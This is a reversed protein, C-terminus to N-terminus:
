KRELYFNNEDRRKLYSEFLQHYGHSELLLQVANLFRLCGECTEKKSSEIIHRAWCELSATCLLVSAGAKTTGFLTHEVNNYATIISEITEISDVVLFTYSIHRPGYTLYRLDGCEPDLFKSLVLLAETRGKSGTSLDLKFGEKAILRLTALDYGLDNTAIFFVNKM